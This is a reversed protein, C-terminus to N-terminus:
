TLRRLSRHGDIEVLATLPLLSLFDASITLQGVLALLAGRRALLDVTECLMPKLSRSLPLLAGSEDVLVVGNASQHLNDPAFLVLPDVGEPGDENAIKFTEYLSAIQTDCSALLTDLDAETAFGVSAFQLLRIRQPKPGDEIAVLNGLLRKPFPGDSLSKPAAGPAASGLERFVVRDDLDLFFSVDRRDGFPTRTTRRAVELLRVEERRSIHDSLERSPAFTDFAATIGTSQLASLASLRALSTLALETSPPTSLARRLGALTRKLDPLDFHTLLDLARQLTEDRAPSEPSIGEECVRSILGHITERVDSEPHESPLPSASVALPSSADAGLDLTSVGADLLALLAAQHACSQAGCTCILRSEAASLELVVTFFQGSDEIRASIHGERQERLLALGAETDQSSLKALAAKTANSFRM